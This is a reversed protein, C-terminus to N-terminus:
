RDMVQFRGHNGPCCEPHRLAQSWGLPAGPVGSMGQSDGPSDRFGAAEHSLHGATGHHCEWLEKDSCASVPWDM